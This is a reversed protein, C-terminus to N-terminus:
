TDFGAKNAEAKKQLETVGIASGAALIGVLVCNSVARASLAAGDVTAFYLLFSSVQGFAFALLVLVWGLTQAPTMKVMDVMVKAFMAAAVAQILINNV